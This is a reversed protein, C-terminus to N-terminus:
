LGFYFYENLQVVEDVQTMLLKVNVDCKAAVTYM